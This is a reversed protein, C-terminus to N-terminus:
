GYGTFGLRQTTGSIEPTFRAQFCFFVGSKRSINKAECAPPASPQEFQIFIDVRTKASMAM